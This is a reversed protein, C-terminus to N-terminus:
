PASTNSPVDAQALLRVRPMEQRPSLSVDIIRDGPEAGFAASLAEVLPEGEPLDDRPIMFVDAPWTAASGLFEVLVDWADAPLPLGPLFRGLLGEIAQELCIRPPLVYFTAM